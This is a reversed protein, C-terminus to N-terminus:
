PSSWPTTLVGDEGMLQASTRAQTHGDKWSVVAKGRHTLRIRGSSPGYAGGTQNWWYGGSHLPTDGKCTEALYPVAPRLSALLVSGGPGVFREGGVATPFWRPTYYWRTNASGPDVAPCSVTNPWRLAADNWVTPPSAATWIIPDASIFEYYMLMLPLSGAIDGSGAPPPRGDAPPTIGDNADAYAMVAMMVQRQNNICASQKASARVTGIAPLLMSALIAIISIVVLLEILTFANRFDRM